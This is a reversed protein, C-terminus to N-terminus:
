VIGRLRITRVGFPPFAVRLIWGLRRPTIKLERRVRGDLEVETVTVHKGRAGAKAAGDGDGIAVTATAPKEQANFLRLVLDGDDMAASSLEIDPNSISLLSRSLEGPPPAGTDHGDGIGSLIQTLPAENWLASERWLGADDWRGAHPVVAYRSEQAGRLPCEGWWWWGTGGWGLVLSLPHDPGHTYGCARDSFLAMGHSGSEEALDLWNLIANHKLENFNRYFTDANRSRCVDFASNKYLAPRRIAVPFHAQLKWRDDLCSCEFSNKVDKVQIPDGIRTDEAFHFRTFFEIPRHGQTVTVVSYFGHRDLKGHVELVVRLPGNELIRVAAPTDVTTIWKRETMAYGRCENFLRPSKRDVFEKRLTKAYLSTVAGGRAPDVVIRYLDSEVVVAGNRRTKAFARRPATTSTGGGRRGTEVAPAATLSEIRFSDYGMPAMDARLLIRAVHISDDFHYRRDVITQSPVERGSRDLVRFAKTGVGANIRAEAVADRSYGTTNFVRVWASGKRAHRERGTNGRQKGKLTPSGAECLSEAAVAILEDSMEEAALTQAGTQWGWNGRWPPIPSTCCAWSDHHQALLLHEWAERLREAPWASGRWLAALAAMKEATLIRNEASRIYVAMQHVTKEGWPLNFEFDDQNLVWDEAARCDVREFYERITIRKAHASARWPGAPWGCDQFFFGTPRAIGKAVCERAYAEDSFGSRLDWMNVRRDFTHRPIAPISSGDPGVWNVIEADHGAVCGFFVTNNKLSARVFGFSRLIQPLCRTFCPEQAAYTDVVVGPFHERHIRLGHEFHRINSEGGVIWNYPQAYTSSVIEVRHRTAPDTVFRVFERYTDPDRRRLATWSIPEIELSINWEPQLRLGELIYRWAGPPMSGKIGGHFGDIYYVTPVSERQADTAAVAGTPRITPRKKRQAM